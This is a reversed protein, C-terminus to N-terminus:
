ILHVEPELDIGFDYKIKEQIIKMLCLVDDATAGGTNVLFNGHRESVMAGGVTLGKLGSAEILRGASDHPPNKFFSGASAYESPQSGKRRELLTKCTARIMEGDGRQLELAVASVVAKDQYPAFDQWCRYSFTLGRRPLIIEGAATVLTVSRLVSSIDRGWAGANMIVAGGITGPIGCGFELGTLGRESCRRALKALGCGAGARLVVSGDDEEEEGIAAFEGGLLVIVGPFGEDRVLLNTGRGIVRWPVNEETLFLLLPQLERVLDVRVVAEAPGGIAFSTYRHLSCQWQIPQTVLDTLRQQQGQNV